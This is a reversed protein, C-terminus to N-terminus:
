KIKNKFIWDIKNNNNTELIERLEQISIYKLLKKDKKLIDFFRKKNNWANM